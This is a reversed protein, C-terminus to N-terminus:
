LADSEEPDSNKKGFPRNPYWEKLGWSGRQVSVVDGKAKYRRHLISSVTNPGSTPLGGDALAAAIDRASMPNRKKGLVLKAADVIKMGLYPNFVDNVQGREQGEASHTEGLEADDTSRDLKGGSRMRELSRITRDIEKRKAKLDAIVETYPDNMTTSSSM